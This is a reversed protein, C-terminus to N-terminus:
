QVHMKLADPVAESSSTNLGTLTYEGFLRVIAIGDVAVPLWM